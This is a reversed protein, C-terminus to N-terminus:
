SPFHPWYTNPDPTQHYSSFLHMSLRRGQATIWTVLYGAEAWLSGIRSARQPSYTESHMLKGEWFVGVTVQQADQPNDMLVVEV